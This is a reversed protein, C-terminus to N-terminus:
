STLAEQLQGPFQPGWGPPLLALFSAARSGLYPCPDGWRGM